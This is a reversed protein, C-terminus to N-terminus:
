DNEMAREIFLKLRLHDKIGPTLEVGSCSDVAYPKVAAIAERVNEPTLGGALYIKLALNSFRRAVDWDFTKGTGGRESNSFSDLLIADAGFSNQEASDLGDAVRIAKIVTLGTENRLGKIFDATEDGHLQIAELAVKRAIEVITELPENVFVGVAAARSAVTEAIRRAQEVTVYRPSQPYFNLGIQDAGFRVAAKADELNTIGCIKIKTM